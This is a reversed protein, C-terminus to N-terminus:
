CCTCGIVAACCILGGQCPCCRDNGFCCTDPGCVSTGGPCTSQGTAGGGGGPTPAPGKPACTKKRCDELGFYFNIRANAQCATDGAAEWPRLKKPKKKKKKPKPNHDIYDFFATGCAEMSIRNKRTEYSLCELCEAQAAYAEMKVAGYALSDSTLPAAVAALAAGKLLGRRSASAEPLTAVEQAMRDFWHM